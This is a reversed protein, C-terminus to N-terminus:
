IPPLLSEIGSMTLLEKYLDITRLDILRQFTAIDDKSWLQKNKDKPIIQNWESPKQVLDGNEPLPDFSGEQRSRNFSADLWRFNGLSNGVVGRQWRFNDSNECALVEAQLRSGCSGWNFGFIDNPIIHDLDIPLDDDRESLPNYNPFKAVIYSRQLWILARNILERNTSLVRLAEGPKHGGERDAGTFRDAWQRLL